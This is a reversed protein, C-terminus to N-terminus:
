IKDLANIAAESSFGRRVLYSFLRARAKKPELGKLRESRKRALYEVTEYESYSKKAEEIKKDIIDKDIGKIQLEQRIKRLGLPKKLRSRIWASAFVEDNIFDKLKLFDVIEKIVAPDFKKSKLREILERESRLRFKLLLFSYNKAKELQDQLKDDQRM